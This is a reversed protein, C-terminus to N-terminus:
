NLLQTKGVLFIHLIRLDVTTEGMFSLLAMNVYAYISKNYLAGLRSVMYLVKGGFRIVQTGYRSGVHHLSLVVDQM